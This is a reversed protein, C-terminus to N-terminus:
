LLEVLARKDPNEQFIVKIDAQEFKDLELYKPGSIGSLYTDAGYYKCIAILRDTGKVQTNWDSVIPTKIKLIECAKRIINSNTGSLSKIICEDFVKLAPLDSTIKKWDEAPFLYEKSIIPTHSQNVRM